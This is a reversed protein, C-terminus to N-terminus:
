DVLFFEYDAISKVAPSVDTSIFRVHYAGIIPVASEETGGENYQVTNYQSENYGAGLTSEAQSLNYLCRFVGTASFFAIQNSVVPVGLPDLITVRSQEPLNGPTVLVGDEDRITGKIVVTEEDVFTAM